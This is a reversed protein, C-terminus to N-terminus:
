DFTYKVIPTQKPEPNLEPYNEDTIFKVAHGQSYDYDKKVHYATFTVASIMILVSCIVAFRYMIIDQKKIEKPFFDLFSEKIEDPSGFKNVLDTYSCDPHEESYCM